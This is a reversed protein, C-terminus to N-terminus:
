LKKLTTNLQNVIEPDLKIVQRDYTVLGNLEDEVDSVQTYIAAALGKKAAPIIQEEYLKVFATTLAKKSKFRKYGFNASSFFHGPVKLSYGGFESLVKVRNLRDKHYRYKRFYVHESKLTGVKQDHWGSVIDILRTNDLEEIFPLLKKADFQGWGENFVTWLVISPYNYLHHITRKSQEYFDQRGAADQRGFRRYKQDNVHLNLIAPVNVTMFSYPRGGNVFDQWVMMGLRDCHYYFREWEIKIHKRLVNFGMKKALMIDDVLAQDHPPTLYGEHFYGQDLLGTHFLPKNNLYLRKHGLADTGVSIKRMAFYSDVGDEGLSVRFPYLHPQDPTWPIVQEIDLLFPQNSLTLYDQNNFTIKLEVNEDSYVIIEVQNEDFKPTIKLEKVHLRPVSELWVPLFIGSQPTYWIQGRTLKQKGRAHYSTDTVDQVIIILENETKVHKSIDISFPHFGGISFDFDQVMVGNLFIRAVQDIAGFHLMTKDKIFSTDLSFKRRYFLFQHPMLTKNVGSLPSEPSFPVIILGDYQRPMIGDDKIAYEWEGNLSFYSDRRMIMRPYEALPTLQKNM